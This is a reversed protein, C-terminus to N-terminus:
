RVYFHRERSYGKLAMCQNLLSYSRHQGALSVQYDCEDFARTTEAASRGQGKWAESVHNCGALAVVGVLVIALRKGNM